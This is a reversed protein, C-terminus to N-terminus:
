PRLYMSTDQIKISGQLNGFAVYQHDSSVAMVSYSTFNPDHLLLNWDSCTEEELSKSGGAQDHLGTTNESKGRWTYAYLYSFYSVNVSQLKQPIQHM